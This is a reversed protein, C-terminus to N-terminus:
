HISGVLLANRFHPSVAPHLTASLSTYSIIYKQMVKLPYDKPWIQKELARHVNAAGMNYAALYLRSQFDFRGRLYDLYATGISINVLPDTLSRVGKWRIGYKKAIWKATDPKLQMLGIEGFPGTTAPNFSSETEIVAMVFLPDFSYLQSQTLIVREISRKKRKWKAVLLKDLQERVFSRIDLVNEGVKVVSKKYHRGLLEKAHAVRKKSDRLVHDARLPCVLLVVMLALAVEFPRFKQSIM